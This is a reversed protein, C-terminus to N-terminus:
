LIESTPPKPCSNKTIRACFGHAVPSYQMAQRDSSTTLRKTPTWDRKRQSPTARPSTCISPEAARKIEVGNIVVPLEDATMTIIEFQLRGLRIIQGHLSAKIWGFERLGWHGYLRHCMDAWISIDLIQDWFLEEGWGRNVYIQKTHISWIECILLVLMDQSVGKEEALAFIPERQYDTGNCFGVFLEEVKAAFDEDAFIKELLADIEVVAEPNMRNYENVKKVHDLILSKDM